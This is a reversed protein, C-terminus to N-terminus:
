CQKVFTYNGIGQVCVLSYNNALLGDISSKIRSKYSDDIPNFAEDYEVCIVKIDIGDELITQLVVYEAGEIDLKLLDLRSHGNQRLIDQLRNVPVEIFHDTKQLNVLSHSVHNEDKPTYFALIDKKDWLGV